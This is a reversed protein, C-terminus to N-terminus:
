FLDEQKLGQSRWYAAIKLLATDHIRRAEAATIADEPYKMSFTKALMEWSEPEIGAPISRYIPPRMEYGYRIVTSVLQPSVGFQKAIDVKKIATKALEQIETVQQQTLKRPQM